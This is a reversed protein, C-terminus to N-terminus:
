PAGGEGPSASARLRGHEAAAAALFGDERQPPDSPAEGSPPGVSIKHNLVWVWVVFLLSYILGFLVISALVHSRQVAQSLGEETRLGTRLITGDALEVTTPEYVEGVTPHEPIDYEPYVIWPQRGTEAAIWGAQNAVFPLLVSVVLAWLVWRNEYLRRRRLLLLALAMVDLMMMGSGVMVHYAYFPVQVRPRDEPHFQDLGIVPEDADFHLLLSLGGPIGIGWKVTEEESDPFGWLWLPAGQGENRYHGEFAALKAPQHEAVMDAQFHGNMPAAVAFALGVVLAPPLVRRVFDQHVGRLAYWAAVSAVFFAGTLGAGILVHSLRLVSSPNFVMAWFDVIETRPGFTTQVIQYGAPTQQWSNAVVIWVSSFVSGLFVMLTAFFHTRRGVRDWGFVLVALFGSELFFAFIGEAALASGFVDGVYRSYTAWNTGFEFEMVIGTAVGMAFNAAFIGTWFRAVREWGPDATRLWMAEFFVMMLGLGISLPPFLYHFMITGAFQLRSLMLVDLEM